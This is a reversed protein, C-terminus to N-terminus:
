CAADREDDYDSSAPDAQIIPVHEIVPEEFNVNSILGVLIRLRSSKHEYGVLIINPSGTM